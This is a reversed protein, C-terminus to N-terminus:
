QMGVTAEIRFFDQKRRNAEGRGSRKDDPTFDYDIKAAIVARCAMYNRVRPDSLGDLKGNM